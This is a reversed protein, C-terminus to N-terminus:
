PKPSSEIAGIPEPLPASHTRLSALATILAGAFNPMPEPFAGIM